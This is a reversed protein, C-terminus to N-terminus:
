KKDLGLKHNMEPITYNSVLARLKDLSSKSFRIRWGIVGNKLDRKNATAKLDFNKNLVSILLNVESLSYNETCLYITQKVTDYYGDGMIFHALGIPTLLDELNSPIVKINNNYFLAHFENLCPFSLTKFYISKYALGTRKDKKREIVAPPTAVLPKFLNYLYNVYAEQSPYSHDISLRANRSSKGKELHADALLVGVLSEKQENTVEYRKKYDNSFNIITSFFRNFFFKCNKNLSLNINVILLNAGWDWLTLILIVKSNKLLIIILGFKTVKDKDLCQWPQINWTFDRPIWQIFVM